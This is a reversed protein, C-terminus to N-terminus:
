KLGRNQRSISDMEPIDYAIWGNEQKLIFEALPQKGSLRLMYGSCDPCSPDGSTQIEGKNNVRVHLVTAGTVDIGKSLANQIAAREAHQAYFGCVKYCIEPECKHPPTPANYAESLIEGNRFVAAGRHDKACPSQEATRRVLEIIHGISSIENIGLERRM